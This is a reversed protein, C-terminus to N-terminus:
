KVQILDEEIKKEESDHTKEEDDEDHVPTVSKIDAEVLELHFLFLSFLLKIIIIIKKKKYICM